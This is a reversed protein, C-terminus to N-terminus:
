ASPTPHVEGDLVCESDPGLAKIIPDQLLMYTHTHEKCNRSFLQVKDARKHILIREGDFKSELVLKEGTRM